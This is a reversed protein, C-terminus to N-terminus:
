APRPRLRNHQLRHRQDQERKGRDPDCLRKRPRSHCVCVQHLCLLKVITCIISPYKYSWVSSVRHEGGAPVPRRHPQRHPPPARHHPSQPPRGAAAAGGREALQLPVAPEGAAGVAGGLRRGGDALDISNCQVPRGKTLESCTQGACALLGDLTGGRRWAPLRPLRCSSFLTEVQDEAKGGGVVLVAEQQEETEDVEMAESMEELLQLEEVNEVAETIGAMAVTEQSTSQPGEMTDGVAAGQQGLQQPQRLVLWAAVLSSCVLLSLLCLSLSFKPPNKDDSYLENRGMANPVLAVRQTEEKDM